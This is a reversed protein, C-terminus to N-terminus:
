KGKVRNLFLYKEELAELELLDFSDLKESMTTKAREIEQKLDDINLDFSIAEDVLLITDGNDKVDIVGGQICIGFETKDKKVVKLDGIGLVSIIPTHNNLITIYGSKTPVNLSYVEENLLCKDPSLIKLKFTNM